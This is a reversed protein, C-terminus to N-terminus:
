RAEWDVSKGTLDRIRWETASGIVRIHDPGVKRYQTGGGSSFTGHAFESIVDCTLQNRVQSLSLKKM